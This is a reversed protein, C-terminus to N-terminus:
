FWSGQSMLGLDTLQEPSEYRVSLGERYFCVAEDANYRKYEVSDAYHQKRHMEEAAKVGLSSFFKFHFLCGTAPTPDGRQANNLYYPRCDHMSSRYFYHPQWKILPVKNLAPSREPKDAFYTRM